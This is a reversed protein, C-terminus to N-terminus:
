EVRSYSNNTITTITINTSYWYLLGPTKNINFILVINISSQSNEGKLACLIYSLNLFRHCSSVFYSFFYNQPIKWVLTQNTHFICGIKKKFSRADYQPVKPFVLKKGNYFDFYKSFKVLKAWNLPGLGRFISFMKKAIRLSNSWEVCKLFLTSFHGRDSSNM